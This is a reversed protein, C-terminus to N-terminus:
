EHQENMFDLLGVALADFASHEGADFTRVVAAMREGTVSDQMEAEFRVSVVDEPARGEGKFRMESLACRLRLVGGDPSSVVSYYPNVVIILKERFAAAMRSALEPDESALASGPLPQVDFQDFLLQDFDLIANDPAVWRLGTPEEPHVGMGDYSGLYGTTGAPDSACAACFLGAALAASALISRIRTM